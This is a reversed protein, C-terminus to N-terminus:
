LNCIIPPTRVDLPDGHVLMVKVKGEVTKYIVLKRDIHGDFLINAEYRDFLGPFKNAYTTYLESPPSVLDASESLALFVSHERNTFKVNGTFMVFYNGNLEFSEKKIACPSESPSLGEYVGNEFLADVSRIFIENQKQIYSKSFVNVSTSLFLTIILFKLMSDGELISLFSYKGFL